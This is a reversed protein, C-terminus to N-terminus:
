CLVTNSAWKNMNSSFGLFVVNSCTGFRSQAEVGLETRIEFQNFFPAELGM